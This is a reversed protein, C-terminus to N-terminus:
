EDGMYVVHDSCRVIQGDYDHEKAYQEALNMDQVSDGTDFEKYM